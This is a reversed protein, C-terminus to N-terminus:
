QTIKFYNINEFQIQAQNFQNKSSHSYKIIQELQENQSNDSLNSPISVEILASFKPRSILHDSQSTKLKLNNERYVQDRVVNVNAMEEEIRDLDEDFIEIDEVKIEIKQQKTELKLEQLSMLNSSQIQNFLQPIVGNLAQSQYETQNEHSKLIPNDLDRLKCQHNFISKNEDQNINFEFESDIICKQNGLQEEIIRIYESYNPEESFQLRRVKDFIDLLCQPICSGYDKINKLLRVQKIYNVLEIKSMSDPYKIWHPKGNLLYLSVYILSEIDDRRSPDIHWEFIIIQQMLKQTPQYLLKLIELAAVQCIHNNKNKLVSQRLDAGLFNTIIIPLDEFFIVDQLKPFGKRGKM